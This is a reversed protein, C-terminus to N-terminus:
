AGLKPYYIDDCFTDFCREGDPCDTNEICRGDGPAIRAPGCSVLFFLILFIFKIKM